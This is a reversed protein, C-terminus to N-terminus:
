ERGRQQDNIAQARAAAEAAEAAQEAEVASKIAEVSGTGEGAERLAEDTADRAKRVADSERTM